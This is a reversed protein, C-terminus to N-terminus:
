MLESQFSTLYELYKKAREFEEHTGIDIWPEPSEYCMVSQNKEILTNLLTPMDLSQRDPVHQFVQPNLLYIGSNIKYSLSPKEEISIVKKQNSSSVVGYPLKLNFIKACLSVIANHERHFQSFVGLDLTAIVDGNVVIFDTDIKNKLLYLSGATGLAEPEEVYQITVGLESGDGLKDKIQDALYNVTVYFERAGKSKLSLILTEIITKDGITLLPKPKTETFPLLRKGKGGAMIVVPINVKDNVIFDELVKIDVLRGDEAIVPMQRLGHKRLTEFIKKNSTGYKVFKFNPRHIKDLTSDLNEGRLFARRIDGDTICGILENPHNATFIVQYPSEAIRQLAEKVTAKPSVLSKEIPFEAKKVM